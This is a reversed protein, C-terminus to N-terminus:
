LKDRADFHDMLVVQDFPFVNRRRGNADYHDRLMTKVRGMMEDYQGEASHWTANNQRITSLLLNYAADLVSNRDFGNCAKGLARFLERGATPSLKHLPDKPNRLPDLNM